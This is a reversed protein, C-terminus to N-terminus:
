ATLEEALRVLVEKEGFGGSKSIVQLTKGGWCLKSLVTGQGVEAVPHIQNVGIEKMVGMLTDGGTMLITVDLNQQILHRVVKGLCAAVSFRIQDSRIGKRDAYEETREGGVSDFTDVEVCKKKQFLEALEEMFAKGQATEYYEPHLKQEPLLTRRLFGNGEAYQIQEKTIPNLSGCVACFFATRRIEGKYSGQLELADALFSAFGACGALLCLEGRTKLMEIRKQIDQNELVDFVVVEKEALPEPIEQEREVLLIKKETQRALIEPVYSCTMPDFPDLRFSSEELKVGDIYHIGKETVRQVDPFAPIFYLRKGNAGDLVASLESGVNGRLASDTKKYIVQIGMQVAQRVINNVAEYAEKVSMIRTEPDIVLVQATQSIAGPDLRTGTFVQTEIGKKVFQIGTDLAGTFDDAIILLKIM